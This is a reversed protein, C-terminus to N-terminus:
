ASVVAAATQGQPKIRRILYTEGGPGMNNIAGTVTGVSETEAGVCETNSIAIAVHTLWCVLDGAACESSPITTAGSWVYFQQSVTHTNSPLDYGLDHHLVYTVFGSCDWGSPTNGAYVYPTGVYKLADNAIAAGQATAGTVDAANAVTGTSSAAAGSASSGLSGLGRFLTGTFFQGLDSLLSNLDPAPPQKGAGVTKVISLPSVGSLGAWLVVGGATALALGTGSVPM